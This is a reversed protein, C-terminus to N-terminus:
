GAPPHVPRRDAGRGTMTAASWAPGDGLARKRKLAEEAKGERFLTAIERQEPTRQRITEMIRPLAAEPLERAIIEAASAAEISQCQERDGMSRITTGHELWLRQLEVFQRPSLQAMEDVVLVTNGDVKIRGTAFATSSRRSPSASPSGPM